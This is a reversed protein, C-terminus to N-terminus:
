AGREREDTYLEGAIFGRAEATEPGAFFAAAPAHELLRGEDLFLVEDALRRAQGLDHAFSRM